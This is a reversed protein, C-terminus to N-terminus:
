FTDRKTHFFHIYVVLSAYVIAGGGLCLILAGITIVNNHALVAPLGFGSIVLMGTLFYGLDKFNRGSIDLPDNLGCRSCVFDPIPSLFYFVIILLPWWNQWIVGAIINCVIGLTLAFALALMIKLNPLTSESDM